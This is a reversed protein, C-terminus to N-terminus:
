APPHKGDYGARRGEGVPQTRSPWPNDGDELTETSPVRNCCPCLVSCLVIGRSKSEVAAFTLGYRGGGPEYGLRRGPLGDDQAAAAARRPSALTPM